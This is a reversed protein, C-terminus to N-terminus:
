GSSSHTDSLLPARSCTGCGPDRWCWGHGRSESGAPNQEGSELPGLSAKWAIVTKGGLTNSPPGGLPQRPWAVEKCPWMHYIHSFVLLCAAVSLPGRSPSCPLLSPLSPPGKSVPQPLAKRPQHSQTSIPLILFLSCHLPCPWRWASLPFAPPFSDAANLVLSSALLSPPLPFVASSFGLIAPPRAPGVILSPPWTLLGTDQSFGTTEGRGATLAGGGGWATAASGREKQRTRESM